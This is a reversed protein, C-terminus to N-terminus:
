TPSVTPAHGQAQGNTAVGVQTVETPDDPGRRMQNRDHFPITVAEAPVGEHSEDVLEEPRVALHGDAGNV